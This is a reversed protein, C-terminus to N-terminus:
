IPLALKLLGLALLALFRQITQNEKKLFKVILNEESVEEKEQGKVANINEEEIIKIKDETLYMSIWYKLFCIAMKTEFGYYDEYNDMNLDLFGKSPFQEPNNLNFGIVLGGGNSNSYLKLEVKHIPILGEEELFCIMKDLNDFEYNEFSQEIYFDNSLGMSLIEYTRVHCKESSKDKSIQLLSYYRGIRRCLVYFFKRGGAYTMEKLKKNM